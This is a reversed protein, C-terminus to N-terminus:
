NTNKTTILFLSFLLCNDYGVNKIVSLPDWKKNDRHRWKKITGHGGSKSICRLGWLHLDLGSHSNLASHIENLGQWM